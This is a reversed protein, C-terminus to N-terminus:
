GQRRGGSFKAVGVGVLGVGALMLLYHWWPRGQAQAPMSRLGPGSDAERPAAATLSSARIFHPGDYREVTVPTYVAGSATQRDPGLAQVQTGPALTTVLDGLHIPGTDSAMLPAAYLGAPSSKVWLRTGADAGLVAAGIVYPNM